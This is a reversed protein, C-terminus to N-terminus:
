CRDRLGGRSRLERRSVRLSRSEMGRFESRVLGATASLTEEALVPSILAAMAGYNKAQWGDLYAKARSCVDEDAFAPDTADLTKPQWESLAKKVAENRAIKQFLERWTPDPKAPKNKKEISRAWDAVAFLRNWAKTAVLV